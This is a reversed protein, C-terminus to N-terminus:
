ANAVSQGDVTTETMGVEIKSQGNELTIADSGVTLTPTLTALEVGDSSLAVSATALELGISESEVTINAIPGQAVKVSDTGLEVSNATTKIAISDSSMDISNEGVKLMIGQAGLEISSTGVKLMITKKGEAQIISALMELATEATVETTGGCISTKPSSVVACKSGYVFTEPSQVFCLKDGRMVIDQDSALIHLVDNGLSSLIGGPEHKFLSSKAEALKGFKTRWKIPTLKAKGNYKTLDGGAVTHDKQISLKLKKEARATLKAAVTSVVGTVADATETLPDTVSSGINAVVETMNQEIEQLRSVQDQLGAVVDQLQSYYVLASDYEAKLEENDPDEEARDKTELLTTGATTLRATQAELNAVEETLKVSLSTLEDTMSKGLAHLTDNIIDVQKVGAAVAQFGALVKDWKFTGAWSLISGSFGLKVASMVTDVNTSTLTGATAMCSFAGDTSLIAGSEAANPSGLQFVTNEHPTTMKIRQGETTDDIDIENGGGTRIVNKAKNDLFVVSPTLANPVCASIVPRDPDGDIFAVLVETGPRLPFHMGYGAGAHPQAMRIPLSAKDGAADSLDFLLKVKYRGHEDVAAYESKEDADIIGSHMGHVRPRPTLRPPRFPVAAPIARLLNRYIARPEGGAADFGSLEASHEVEVVLLEVDGHRHGTVLLRAGAFLGSDDTTAGYTARTAALEEARARAIRKALVETQYNDGFDYVLGHGQSAVTAEAALNLQPHMFDYDNILVGAAVKRRAAQFARVARGPGDPSFPLSRAREIGVEDDGFVLKDRGGDHEFWYTIGLHEALRTIFALDSERYQVVFDRQPYEGSLRLEFDEGEKLGAARLRETIIEPVSKDVFVEILHNLSLAHVRPVLTLRYLLRGSREDVVDRVESVAGFVARVEDDLDLFVLGAPLAIVADLDLEHQGQLEIDVDFQFCAGLRERGMVRLVESQAGGLAETVLRAIRTNSM